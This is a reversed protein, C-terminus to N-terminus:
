RKSVTSKTKTKDVEDIALGCSTCDDAIAIRSVYRIANHNYSRENIWKFKCYERYEKCITQYSKNPLLSADNAIEQLDIELIPDNLKEQLMMLTMEKVSQSPQQYSKTHTSSETMNQQNEM